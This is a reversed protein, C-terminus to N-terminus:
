IEDINFPTEQYVYYNLWNSFLLNAHGRWKVLPKLNPNDNRYYHKPPKIEMGKGLDRVYEEHLNSAAYEAHGTVFFKRGNREQVVAVGAEDSRAIVELQPIEQIDPERIETHRSHPIHFEDDFGRFIPLNSFNATHRFVGFMKEDLSYKPVKYYHYLAAMSAWCIFFSSQVNHAAWDFIEKLEDWYTVDEFELQEVPAGTVILGDYKRHKILNFSTYFAQMHEATTHKPTHGELKILDLELQLPTNSLLRILDTETTVKVPMLNLIAIRLPRIDQHLARTTDMVFINEKKLEEIAPLKDPINVPM